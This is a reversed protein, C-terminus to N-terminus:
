ATPSSTLESVMKRLTKAYVRGAPLRQGNQLVVETSGFKPSRFERIASKRVLARRHIRAFCQPDLRGELSRISSRMLYSTERTHIRVYDDESCVWEISDVPVRAFGSVNKRIWLETEYRPDGNTRMSTRLASIIARMEELQQDADFGTLRDRARDLAAQLREFEVPKLVYDIASTEFARVAYHDFASVFIILPPKGPPLKEVVDFGTGDRMQVDLLLVDPQLAQIQRLAEECGRAEGIRHIGEMNGLLLHVRRLALVEDDVALVRLPTM